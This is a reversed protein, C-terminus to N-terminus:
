PVSGMEGNEHSERRRVQNRLPRRREAVEFAHKVAAYPSEHAGREAAARAVVIPGRSTSIKLRAHFSGPGHARHKSCEVIVRAGVVGDFSKAFAEARERIDAEIAASSSMGHFAVQIPFSATM